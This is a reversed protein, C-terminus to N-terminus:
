HCVLFWILIRGVKSPFIGFLQSSYANELWSLKVAWPSSVRIQSELGWKAFTHFFLFIQWM